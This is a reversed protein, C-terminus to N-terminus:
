PGGYISHNENEARVPENRGGTERQTKEVERMPLHAPHYTLSEQLRLRAKKGRWNIERGPRARARKRERGRERRGSNNSSQQRGAKKCAQNGRTTSPPPANLTASATMGYQVGMRLHLAISAVLFLTEIKNIRPVNILGNQFGPIADLLM